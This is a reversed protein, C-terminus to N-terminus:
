RMWHRPADDCRAPYRPNGPLTQMETFSSTRWPIGPCRFIWSPSTTLTIMPTTLFPKWACLVAVYATEGAPSSACRSTAVVRLASATAASAARAPFRTDCMLSAIWAVAACSPNATIRRKPPWPIPALAWSSGKMGFKTEAFPWFSRTRAGPITKVISGISVAPALSTRIRSSPQVTTM